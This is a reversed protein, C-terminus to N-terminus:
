YSVATKQLVVRDNMAMEGLGARKAKSSPVWGLLIITVERSVARGTNVSVGFFFMALKERFSLPLKPVVDPLTITRNSTCGPAPTAGNSEAMLDAFFLMSTM